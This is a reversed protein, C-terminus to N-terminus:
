EDPAANRSTERRCINLLSVSVGNNCEEEVMWKEEELQMHIIESEKEGEKM